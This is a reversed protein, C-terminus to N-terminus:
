DESAQAGGEVLALLQECQEPTSRCEALALVHQNDANTDLPTETM